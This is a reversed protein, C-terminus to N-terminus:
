TLILGSTVLNMSGGDTQCISGLVDRGLLHWRTDVHRNGTSFPSIIQYIANTIIHLFVMAVTRIFFTSAMLVAYLVLSSTWINRLMFPM